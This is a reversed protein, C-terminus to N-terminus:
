NAEGPSNEILCFRKEVNCRLQISIQITTERRESIRRSEFAMRLQSRRFGLRGTAQTERNGVAAPAATAGRDAIPRSCRRRQRRLTRSPRRRAQRPSPLQSQPAVPLGAGPASQKEAKQSSGQLLPGQHKALHALVPGHALPRTRVAMYMAGATPHASGHCRLQRHAPEAVASGGGKGKGEAFAPPGDIRCWKNSHALVISCRDFM